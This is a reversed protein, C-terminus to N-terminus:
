VKLLKAEVVVFADDAKSAVPPEKTFPVLPALPPLPPLGV